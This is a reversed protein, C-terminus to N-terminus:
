VPVEATVTASLCPPDCGRGNPYTKRYVVNPVETFLSGAATTVRVLIQSVTLRSSHTGQSCGEGGDCEYSHFPQQAGPTFLEIRYPETPQSTLRVTLGESCGVLTCAEPEFISCGSLAGIGLAVILFSRGSCPAWM